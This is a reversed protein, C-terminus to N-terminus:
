IMVIDTTKAISGRWEPRRAHGFGLLRFYQDGGQAFSIAVGTDDFFQVPTLTSTHLDPPLEASRLVLTRHKAMLPTGLVDGESTCAPVLCSGFNPLSKTHNHLLEYKCVASYQMMRNWGAVVKDHSRPCQSGPEEGAESKSSFPGPESLVQILDRTYLGAVIPTLEVITEEATNEGHDILISSLRAFSVDLDPDAHKTRSVESAMPFHEHIALSQLLEQLGRKVDALTNAPAFPGTVDRVMAFLDTRWKSLHMKRDSSMDSTKMSLHQPHISPLAHSSWRPIWSPVTRDGCYLSGFVLLHQLVLPGGMHVAMQM